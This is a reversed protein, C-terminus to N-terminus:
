VQDQQPCGPNPAALGRRSTARRYRDACEKLGTGPRGNSIPDTLPFRCSGPEFRELDVGPGSDLGKVLAIGLVRPGLLGLVPIVSSLHAKPFGGSVWVRM